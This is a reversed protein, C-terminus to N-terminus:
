QFLSFTGNKFCVTVTSLFHISYLLTVYFLDNPLHLPGGGVAGFDSTWGLFSVNQVHHSQFPTRQYSSRGSFGSLSNWCTSNGILSVSFLVRHFTHPILWYFICLRGDAYHLVMHRKSSWAFVTIAQNSLESEDVMNVLHQVKSNRNIETM